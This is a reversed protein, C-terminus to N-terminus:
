DALRCTDIRVKTIKRSSFRDFWRMGLSFHLRLRRPFYSHKARAVHCVRDDVHEIRGFPLGIYITSGAIAGLLVTEAFSM